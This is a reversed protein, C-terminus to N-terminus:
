TLKVLALCRSTSVALPCGWALNPEMHALTARQGPTSRSARARWRNLAPCFLADRGTISIPWRSRRTSRSPCFRPIVHVLMEGGAVGVASWLPMVSVFPTVIIASLTLLWHYRSVASPVVGSLSSM